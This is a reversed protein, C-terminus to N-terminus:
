GGQLPAVIEIKDGTKLRTHARAMRPVFEGNLATAVIAEDYGLVALAEALHTVALARPDGNVILSLIKAFHASKEYM